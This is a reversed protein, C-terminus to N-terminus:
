AIKQVQEITTIIEFSLTTVTTGEGADYGTGAVANGLYTDYKNANQDSNVLAWAWTITITKDVTSGADNNIKYAELKTELQALTGKELINTAGDKASWVIPHYNVTGGGETYSIDSYGDVLNFSIQSAVEAQGKIQITMSGTTGPAIASNAANVAVGDSNSKTALTAGSPLTYDTGFLNEAKVTIVHGWKAVTAVQSETTKSTVYKALTNGGLGLVLLACALTVVLYPTKNNKRNQKKM